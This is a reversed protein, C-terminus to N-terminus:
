KSEKPENVLDLSFSEIPLERGVHLYVKRAGAGLALERYLRCEIDTIGGELKELPQIVIIPSPQFLKSKCVERIGYQIFKEAREFGNILLRPHSFPNTVEFETKELLKFAANGVAVVSIKKPNSRDFAIYPKEDFEIKSDVLVIRVRNERLQIYIIGSFLGKIWSLM